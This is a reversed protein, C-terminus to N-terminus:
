GRPTSTGSPPLYTAAICRWWYGAMCGGSLAGWPLLWYGDWVQLATVLLAICAGGALASLVILTWADRWRQPRLWLCLPLIVAGMGLLALPLTVCLPLGVLFLALLWNQIDGLDRLLMVLALMAAAVVYPAAAVVAGILVSFVVARQNQRALQWAPRLLGAWARMASALLLTPPTKPM